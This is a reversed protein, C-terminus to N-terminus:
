ENKIGEKMQWNECNVKPKIDEFELDYDLNCIRYRWRETPNGPLEPHDCYEHEVDGHECTICTKNQINNWCKKEHEEIHKKSRDHKWGCKYKCGYKKYEIPM